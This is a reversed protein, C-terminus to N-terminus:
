NASGACATSLHLASRWPMEMREFEIVWVWPNTEWNSTEDTISNWLLRFMKRDYVGEARAQEETIEQIQQVGIEKVRLWIRAADKPMHISPRWTAYFGNDFYRPDERDARYDYHMERGDYPKGHRAWTERVWLFDDGNYPCKWRRAAEEPSLGEPRRYEEGWSKWADEGPYGWTGHDSGACCYCLRGAPQPTILRRTVTKRGDLIARVMETNFLIPRERACRLGNTLATKDRVAM